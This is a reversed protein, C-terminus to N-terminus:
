AGCEDRIKEGTGLVGKLSIALRSVRCDWKEMENGIGDMSGVSWINDRESRENKEGTELCVTWLHDSCRAM